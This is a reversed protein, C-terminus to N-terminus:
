ADPFRALRSEYLRTLFEMLVWEHERHSSRLLRNLHMHALSGALSALEERLLGQDFAARL